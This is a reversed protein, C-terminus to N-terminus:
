PLNPRGESCRPCHQQLLPMLPSILMLRSRVGSTHSSRALEAEDWQVLAAHALAAVTPPTASAHVSGSAALRLASLIRV